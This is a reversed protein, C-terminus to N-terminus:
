KVYESIESITTSVLSHAYSSNYSSLFRLIERLYQRGEKTSSMATWLDPATIENSSLLTKVEDNMAPGIFKEKHDYFMGCFMIVGQLEGYARFIDLALTKDKIRTLVGSNKLLEFADTDTKFEAKTFPTNAFAELSDAPAQSYDDEYRILFYAAHMEQRFLSDCYAIEKLNGDLESAVLELCNSLNKNEERRSLFADGGFTIVIGLVVALFNLFFSTRNEKNFFDTRKMM